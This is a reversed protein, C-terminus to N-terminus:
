PLLTAGTFTLDNDTGWVQKIRHKEIFALSVADVYTLKSGRFRDLVRRADRRIASPVDLVTLGEFAETFALFERASEEDLKHLFWSYTESLVLM